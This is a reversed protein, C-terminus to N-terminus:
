AASQFSGCPIPHELEKLTLLYSQLADYGEHLAEEPTGGDAICGPYDPFEIMYGGGEALTLPRIVCRPLKNTIM